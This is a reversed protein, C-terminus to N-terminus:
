QDNKHWEGNEGYRTGALTDRGQSKPEKTWATLSSSVPSEGGKERGKERKTKKRTNGGQYRLPIYATKKLEKKSKTWDRM